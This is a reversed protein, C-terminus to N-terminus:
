FQKVVVVACMKKHLTPDFHSTRSVEFLADGEEKIIRFGVLTKCNGYNIFIGITAENQFTM